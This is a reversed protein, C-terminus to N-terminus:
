YRLFIDSSVAPSSVSRGPEGKWGEVHLWGAQGRLEVYHSWTWKLQLAAEQHTEVNRALFDKHYGYLPGNEVHFISSGGSQYDRQFFRFEVGGEINRHLPLAWSGWVSHSNPPLSSGLLAGFSQMQTGRGDHGYVWPDVRAYELHVENQLGFADQLAVGLTWAFKNGWFDLPLGSFDDLFFEGYFRGRGKWIWEVDASMAANDRDGALHEAIRLPLGPVLILWGMDRSGVALM